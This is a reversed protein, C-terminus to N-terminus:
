PTARRAWTWSATSNKMEVVLTFWGEGEPPEPEWDTFSEGVLREKATHTQYGLRHAWAEFGNNDNPFFTPMDPHRWTGDANRAVAIPRAALTINM